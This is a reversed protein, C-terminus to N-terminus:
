PQGPTRTKSACPRRRKRPAQTDNRPAPETELFLKLSLPVQFRLRGKEQRVAQFGRLELLRVFFAQILDEAGERSAGQRKIFDCIRQWYSQCIKELGAAGALTKEQAALVLSRHTTAFAAVSASRKTGAPILDKVQTLVM